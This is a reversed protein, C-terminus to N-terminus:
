NDGFIVFAIQRAGESIDTKVKDEPVKPESYIFM